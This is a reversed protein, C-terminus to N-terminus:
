LETPLIQDTIISCVGFSILEKARARDNVTWAVVPIGRKKFHACRRRNLHTEEINLMHPNALFSYILHGPLFFRWGAHGVLYARLVRPNEEALMRLVFPNFSSILVKEEANEEQVVRLVERVLRHYKFDNSKIEINLFRTTRGSQLVERLTPAGVLNKLEQASSKLVKKRMQILRRLNGDHIVMVEQDKSLRVDLETIEFNHHKSNEFASLTNEQLRGRDTLGRHSQLLPLSFSEKIWAPPQWYYLIGYLWIVIALMLVWPCISLATMLGSSDSLSGILVRSIGDGLFHILFLDWAMAMARVEPRVYCIVATDLPSLCTFLALELFFLIVCFSIFDHSALCLWFLPIAFCLSSAALKLYANGNKKDWRDALVGGLLTGILGGAVTLAGFTLNARTLSVDFYRVIYSPMWFALGGVVFTYAAYGFVVSLFGNNRFIERTSELFYRKKGVSQYKTQSKNELKGREPEPVLLILFSLILGPLGVVFFARQWGFRAELLGGLLYGLASGISIAGSYIAFVKGRSSRSFLDALFGPSVVTYSSEGLGVVVRTTLQGSFSRTLGSFSTAVSWLAVGFSMIKARPFRDGLVGFFPAVLIYALIFGSGLIGLQTDSFHLDKKIAPLLASFIYRDAYNLINLSTLLVLTMAPMQMLSKIKEFSKM